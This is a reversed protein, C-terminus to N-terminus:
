CSEPSFILSFYEWSSPMPQQGAGLLAELSDAGGHPLGNWTLWEARHQRKWGRERLVVHPESASKHLAMEADPSGCRGM